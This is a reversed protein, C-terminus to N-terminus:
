IIHKKFNLNLTNNDLWNNINKFLKNVNRTFDDRDTDTIIVSTDRAFLVINNDKNILTPLDNIYILFLLPGLISGQPVGCTFRVWDSSNYNFGIKNLTVKHYRNTLYSDILTKFKGDIGYFQLKDLLIKHNVCDFAKQIDCFIGGMMQSNNLATLISNILSFAAQEASHKIRFGYQEHVLIGNTEFHVYLRNFILNEFIKSFTTLLSIPRYNTIDQRSGKKYIPKVVALDQSCSSLSKMGYFIIFIELLM